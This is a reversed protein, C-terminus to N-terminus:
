AILEHLEEKEQHSIMGDVDAIAYLLNGLEAYFMKVDM